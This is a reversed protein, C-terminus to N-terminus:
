DYKGFTLKVLEAIIKFNDKFSIKTPTKGTKPYSRTVPIEISHYGLKPAKVSMYFLLEYAVFIERFLNLKEDKLLATSIGRFASTTDTYLKGALLSIWPSHIFRVAFWRLFPTNEHKGGKVFRSGQVFGYGEELKEIFDPINEVSDKNNGDITVVGKYNQEIVYRFGMRFQEGQKGDGKNILLTKVGVEKLFEENVCGDKSDGDFIIIDAIKDLGLEQMKKLQDKIKEGENLVPIGICYDHKKGTFLEKIEYNM